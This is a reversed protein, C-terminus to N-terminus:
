LDAIAVRHTSQPLSWGNLIPVLIPENSRDYGNKRNLKLFVDDCSSCLVMKEVKYDRYLSQSTLTVKSM